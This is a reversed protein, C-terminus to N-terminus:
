VVIRLEGTATKYVNTAVLGGGLAAANDAYTPLVNTGGLSLILADITIGATDNITIAQSNVGEVSLFAQLIELLLTSFNAGDSIRSLNQIASLVHENDVGFGDLYKHEVSTASNTSTASASSDTWRLIADTITLNVSSSTVGDLGGYSGVLGGAQGLISASDVGNSYGINFLTSQALYSAGVGNLDASALFRVSNVFMSTTLGSAVNYCTASVKNGSNLIETYLTASADTRIPVYLDPITTNIEDVIANIHGFKALTMDAEKKLFPDPSQPKFKYM